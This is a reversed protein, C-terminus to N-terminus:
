DLGRRRAPGSITNSGYKYEAACSGESSVMCPGIPNAPTCMKGFLRCELPAKVGLLVKGCICAPNEKPKSTRIKFRKLANFGEYAKAFTLGSKPIMGVERWNSDVERFVEKLLKQAEPNGEPRVTRSYQIEIAPSGSNIMDELMRVSTKLDNEEFGAVVGPVGYKEAVFRYPAVGIIASVHGPLIFGDIRREKMELIAKLANPITKFMPLVSFNKIKRKKAIKVTAAITPSTTEFGIGLFVVQKKPNKVAIDLADVPSYVIRVDAGTTREKDLSSYSGPVRVMDGFTAIIVDKNKSLEIAKDIDEVPTVCVPCGPGSILKVSKSFFGKLGFRAIAMTHTGCVEM